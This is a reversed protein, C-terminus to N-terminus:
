KMGLLARHVSYIHILSLTLSEVAATQEASLSGLRAQSRRLETQRIEEAQRQLAVIAPAVNVTLLRQHFREVEGAILAEADTAERSREAQRKYVDLHTYSVASSTKWPMADSWFM